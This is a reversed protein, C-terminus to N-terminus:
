DCNRWTGLARRTRRLMRHLRKIPKTPGDPCLAVLAQQLRRTVVRLDHVAEVDDAALVPAILSSFRECYREVLPGLPHPDARAAAHLSRSSTRRRRASPGPPAQTPEEM